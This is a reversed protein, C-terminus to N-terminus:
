GSSVRVGHPSGDTYIIKTEGAVKRLITALRELVEAAGEATLKRAEIDANVSEAIESAMWQQQIELNSLPLLHKPQITRQAMRLEVTGIARGEVDPPWRVM